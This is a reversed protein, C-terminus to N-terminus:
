ADGGGLWPPDFTDNSNVNYITNNNVTTETNDYRSNVVIITKNKGSSFYLAFLVIVCTASILALTKITDNFDDIVSVTTASTGTATIIAGIGFLGCIILVAIALVGFLVKTLCGSVQPNM